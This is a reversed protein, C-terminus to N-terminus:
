LEQLSCVANYTYATTCHNEGQMSRKVDPEASSPAMQAMSTKTASRRQNEQETFLYLMKKRIKM